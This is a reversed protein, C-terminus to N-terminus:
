EAHTANWSKMKRNIHALLERQTCGLVSSTSSQKGLGGGNYIRRTASRVRHWLNGIPSCQACIRQLRGHECMSRGGHLVCLQKRKGCQCRRPM